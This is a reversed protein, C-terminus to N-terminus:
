EERPELVAELRRRAKHLAVAVAGAAIGLARAIEANTLDGFYRLAFVEAERAPAEALAQRLLAAKEAALVVADPQDRRPALPEVTLAVSPRRRRLRDLARCTTLRRLLAGWDDVTGRRQLRVADLFAEQVADEADGADALIRWATTLAM